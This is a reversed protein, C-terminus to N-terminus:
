QNKALYDSLKQIFDPELFDRRIPTQQEYMVTDTVATFGHTVYSPFVMIQGHNM